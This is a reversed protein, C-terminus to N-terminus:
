SVLRPRPQTTAAAPGASRGQANLRRTSPPLFARPIVSASNVDPRLLRTERWLRDIEYDLAGIRMALKRHMAIARTQREIGDELVSAQASWQGSLGLAPHSAAPLPGTDPKARGQQSKPRRMFPRCLLAVALPVCAILALAALETTPLALLYASM